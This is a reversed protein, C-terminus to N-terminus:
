KVAVGNVYLTYGNLNVNSLDGNFSSVYSDGTLTWTSGADLIVSVSSSSDTLIAGTIDQNVLNLTVNGGNRGSSGWSDASADLFVNSDSAYTFDVDELTITTTVNTVHFMSGTEATMTGGTMTFASSGDSADGSMSQYILVNTKQTSQGNLTANSGTIDVNQLTVSNGGEIVVAESNTASLTADSVTIDATSYIAPSGVGTTDYTGNTVTVTGGGRDSRIAASSNGSTSVTLNTANMSAGGTTMLGGSNNGTTTITTNSVNVTTGTGYSFVGNAHSGDTTVTADDITLTAGGTALVAANVGTFDANEGSSSGTKTVTANTLSVDNGQVLVSNEGDSTSAYSTGDSSETVTTAAVYTVNENGPMGGPMGPMQGDGPMAPPTLGDTPQQGDGPMAPPTQSNDQQSQNGSQANIDGDLFKIMMYGVKEGIRVKVWEDGVELIEVETGNPFTGLIKSDLNTEQRMRLGSNNGTQVTVSNNGTQTQGNSNPIAPPIQGDTTQQSNGPMAPPTQGDSPMQGNGPMAPPTQSDSPQQGNGPMAPPTQGDTAQQSNGPMAPPTQGNSSQQSNGPMAPPMQSSNQAGPGAANTTQQSQNFPIQNNGAAFASGAICATLLGAAVLVALFRKM